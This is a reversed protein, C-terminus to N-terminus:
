SGGPRRDRRATTTRVRVIGRRLEAVESTALHRWEGPKMSGLRLTGLRVRVIRVVPLGLSSGVERIQRKRGEGMVIRLWAGKGAGSEVAVHAPATKYGDELVVGRSWTEIQKADPRRAVLVRYEKDQGYRPHTLRNTLEGDNTMLILGESDWDLRGVPYLRGSEPILQRVTKRGVEDSVSSIINRPKYLAIYTLPAPAELAAGDVEIADLGRDAKQGLTAVKGNVNVRGSSILEECARRSGYGAQALLKQLREAM